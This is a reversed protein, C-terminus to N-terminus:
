ECVTLLKTISKNGCDLRVAYVGMPVDGAWDFIYTGAAYNDEDIHRVLRGSLDFVSLNINSATSLFVEFSFDSNGPNPSVALEPMMSVSVAYTDINQTSFDVVIAYDPGPVPAVASATTNCYDFYFPGASLDEYESDRHFRAPTSGITAATLVLRTGDNAFDIDIVSGHSAYSNTGTISGTLPDVTKVQKDSYIGIAFQDAYSDYAVRLPHNGCNWTGVVSSSAGDVNILSYSGGSYNSVMARSGDDNFAIQLPFDGVTLDAVITNTSTDIVKVKDDFSAAVLCYTGDPSVKVDSSVMCAVYSVGIIGCPIEAIEVSEAGNLEVVSVTNASINGVYAYADDPTLSIVGSRAGTPVDAIITNTDLDIIKVSNSNFGCVVAYRSDSTVAADQVRDGIELVALVELTAMDIISVNDSLTNSVVAVSGDPSIVSRRSGDGEITSGSLIDGLYDVSTSDFTYCYVGEHSYPYYGASNNAAPSVCGSSQSNGWYSGAISESAFDIISYRNQGSVALSHDGSVGVWFASYTDTFTIFYGGDFNVLTSTNNNTSVYAKSGDQNVAIEKTMGYGYGTVSVMTEISYASLDIKYLELPNQYTIAVLTEEDGSVGVNMCEPITLTYDINGTSVNFFMLSTEGDGVAILSDNSVLEFGSFNLSFRNSEAGGGFGFLWIPFDIITKSHTMSDLCIVECVDDIDCAVYAYSGDISCRIVWPQEGSQFSATLSWDSIDYIDIRDSFPIAIVLYEDTCAIAGPYGDVTFTTDIIMTAWDMVSINSTMYNCVLVKEGDNTFTIDMLYDGEPLIGPEIDDVSATILPVTFPLLDEATVGSCADFTRFNIDEAADESVGFGVSLCLIISFAYLMFRRHTFDDIKYYIIFIRLPTQLAIDFRVTSFNSVSLIFDASRFCMVTFDSSHVMDMESRGM